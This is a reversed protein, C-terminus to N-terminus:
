IKISILKIPLNKLFDKFILNLSFDMWHSGLQEMRFSPCVSMVFSTTKVNAYVM